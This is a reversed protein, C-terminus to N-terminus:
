RTGKSVMFRVAPRQELATTADGKEHPVVMVVVPAARELVLEQSSHVKFRYGRLYSFVGRGEGRLRLLVELQHPGVPLEGDFVPLRKRELLAPDNAEFVLEGDIAYAVGLLVFSGGMQFDHEIRLGEGGISTARCGHGPEYSGGLPCRVSPPARDDLVLRTTPFSSGAEQAGCSIVTLLWAVAM